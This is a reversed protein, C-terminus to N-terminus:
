GPGPHGETGLELIYMNVGPFGDAARAIVQNDPEVTKGMFRIPIALIAHTPPQRPSTNGLKAPLLALTIFQGQGHDRHPVGVPDGYGLLGVFGNQHVSTAQSIRVGNPVIAWQSITSEKFKCINIIMMNNKNNRFSSKMTLWITPTFKTPMIFTVQWVGHQDIPANPAILLVLRFPALLLLESVFLCEFCQAARYFALTPGYPDAQM